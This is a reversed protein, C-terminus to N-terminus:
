SDRDGHQQDLVKVQVRGLIPVLETLNAFDGELLSIHTADAPYQGLTPDIQIWRGDVHVSPWAHYLFRGQVHVMGVNIKTPIGAARSLATYLTTHESCDGVGGELIEVASSLSVVPKKTLHEYVWFNLARTKQGISKAKSSIMQATNMIQPHSCQITETANLYKAPDDLEERLSVPRMRLILPDTQVVRQRRSDLLQFLEPSVGDLQLTLSSLKQANRIPPFAYVAYAELLDIDVDEAVRMAEIPTSREMVLGMVTEERYTLGNDDLWMMSPIGRFEIELKNLEYEVGAIERIEKGAHHVEVDSMELSVPDFAPLKLTEGPKIGQSAVMPQIGTFTYLEEPVRIQRLTSDGGQYFVLHMDEGYKKGKVKTKYQDSLLWFEFSDLRFLPDTYVSSEMHISTKIGALAMNMQSTSKISFGLTDRNFVSFVAYGLKQGQHYISMWESESSIEKFGTELSVYRVAEDSKLYNTYLLSGSLIIWISFLLVLYIGRSWNIHRKEGSM